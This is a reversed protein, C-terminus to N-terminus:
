NQAASCAAYIAIAGESSLATLREANSQPLSLSFKINIAKEEESVGEAHWRNGEQPARNQKHPKSRRVFDVAAGVSVGKIRWLRRDCRNGTLPLSPEALIKIQYLIAAPAFEGSNPCGKTQKASMEGTLPIVWARGIYCCEVRM